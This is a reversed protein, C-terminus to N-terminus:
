GLAVALAIAILIATVAIAAITKVILMVVGESMVAVEPNGPLYRVLFDQGVEVDPAVHGTITHKGRPSSYTVSGRWVPGYRGASRRLSTVRGNVTQGFLRLRWERVTTRGETLYFLAFIAM